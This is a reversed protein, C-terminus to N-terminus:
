NEPPNPFVGSTPKNEKTSFQIIKKDVKELRSEDFWQWESAEGNKNLKPNLLGYHICGTSYITIAMVVGQFGTVREKLTKGIKFKFEM